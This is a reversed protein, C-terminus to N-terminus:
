NTNKAEGSWRAEVGREVFTHAKRGDTSPPEPKDYRLAAWTQNGVIGDVMLKDKKQLKIVANHVKTDFKGDRPLTMGLRINLSFQLYEVWGDQSKDGKRLTPQKSQPPPLFEPEKGGPGPGGGGSITFAVPVNEEGQGIQDLVKLGANSPDVKTKTTNKKQEPNDWEM